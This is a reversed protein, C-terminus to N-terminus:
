CVMNPMNYNEEHIIITLNSFTWDGTEPNLYSGNKIIFNM